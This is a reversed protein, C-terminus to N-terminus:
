LVKYKYAVIETEDAFRFEENYLEISIVIIKKNEIDFLKVVFQGLYILKYFTYAKFSSLLVNEDDFVEHTRKCIILSNNDSTKNNFKYFNNLEKKEIRVNGGNRVSKIEGKKIKDYVKQKSVKWFKAAEDVTYYENITQEVNKQAILVGVDRSIKDLKKKFDKLGKITFGNTDKILDGNYDRIKEFLEKKSSGMINNNITEAFM